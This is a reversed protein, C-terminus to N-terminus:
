TQSEEISDAIAKLERKREQSINGLPRYTGDLLQKANDISCGMIIALLRNKDKKLNIGELCKAMNVKLDAIYYREALNLEPLGKVQLPKEIPQNETELKHVYDSALKQFREAYEIFTHFDDAYIPDVKKEKFGDLLESLNKHLDLFYREREGELTYYLVGLSQNFKGLDLFVFNGISAFWSMTTPNGSLDILHFIMERVTEKHAEITGKKGM